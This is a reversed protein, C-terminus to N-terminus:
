LAGAAGPHRFEGGAPHGHRAQPRLEPGRGLAHPLAGAPHDGPRVHLRASRVAPIGPVVPHRHQCRAPGRPADPPAGQSLPRPRAAGGCGPDPGDDPLRHAGVPRQGLPQQLHSRESRDRSLQCLAAHHQPQARRQRWVPLPQGPVHRRLPLPVAFLGPPDDARSSQRVPRGAPRGGARVHRRLRYAPPRRPREDGPDHRAAIGPHRHLLGRQELRLDQVTCVGPHLRLRHASM